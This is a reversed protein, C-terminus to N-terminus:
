GLDQDTLAGIGKRTINYLRYSAGSPRSVVEMVYGLSDLQNLYNRIEEAPINPRSEIITTDYVSRHADNHSLDGILTLIDRMQPNLAM